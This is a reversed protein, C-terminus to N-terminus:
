VLDRYRRSWDIPTPRRFVAIKLLRDVELTTDNLGRNLQMAEARSPAIFARPRASFEGHARINGLAEAFTILAGSSITRYYQM